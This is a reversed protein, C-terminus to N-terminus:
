ASKLRGDLAELLATAAEITESSLTVADGRAYLELVAALLAKKTYRPVKEGHVAGLILKRDDPSFLHEIERLRPIALDKLTFIRDAVLPGYEDIYRDRQKQGEKDGDLLLLFEKGWGVYLRVVVDLSGAGTGPIVRVDPSVGLVDVLYRLYYFDSKGETIVVSPVLELPSPRLELVELVPQFYSTRDPNESVFRRYPTASIQTRGRTNATLYDELSLDGLAANSVVFASDLWRLNILHHSHTAYILQCSQALSEFSKLLEAQASSHLNSAPEDLLFVVGSRESSLGRYSTMLLFMFFWRFGLSRESLDFYGDPGKIKLELFSAGTEEDRDATIDVEQATPARGFIRNWGEFVTKTIERGMGLLVASLSRVDARDNSELRDVVHTNLNAGDGIQELVREFTLRYFQNREDEDSRAATQELEALDFREPLEFLFNPFYWISPLEAKFHNVAGQWQPTKSGYTRPKKQKGTVGEVHLDPWFKSPKSLRSNEFDYREIITLFEPVQSVTLGHEQRMYARYARQDSADLELKAVIEIADNFNGRKSIPVWREPDRMSAMGPDLMDLNEAGYTFCFIAELVTTKGSENLGILTTVDGTLPLTLDEIGKFNKFRFEVYRLQRERLDSSGAYRRRM